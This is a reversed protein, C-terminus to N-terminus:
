TRTGRPVAMSASSSAGRPSSFGFSAAAPLGIVGFGGGDPEAEAERALSVLTGYATHGARIPRVSRFPPYDHWCHGLLFGGASGSRRFAPVRLLERSISCHEDDVLMAHYGVHAPFEAHDLLRKAIPSGPSPRDSSRSPSVLSSRLSIALSRRFTFRRVMPRSRSVRLTAKQTFSNSRHSAVPVVKGYLGLPKQDLRRTRGGLDRGRGVLGPHLARLSGGLGLPVFAGARARGSTHSPM